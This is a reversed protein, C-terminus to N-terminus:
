RFYWTKIPGRSNGYACDGVAFENPGSWLILINEFLFLYVMATCMHLLCFVKEMLLKFIKPQCGVVVINETEIQKLNWDLNPYSGVVRYSTSRARLTRCLSRNHPHPPYLASFVSGRTPSEIYGVHSKLESDDTRSDTIM